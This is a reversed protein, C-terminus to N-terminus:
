LFNSTGSRALTGLNSILDQKSMGIGSDQISLTKEDSDFSIRVFFKTQDELISPDEISKFRIKDLADAANSILERLFVEKHSYLSNIIIEM